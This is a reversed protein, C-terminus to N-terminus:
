GLREIVLRREGDVVGVYAVRDDHVSAFQAGPPGLDAVVAGTEDDHVRLTRRDRDSIVIQGGRGSAWHEADAEDRPRGDATWLVTGDEIDFVTVERAGYPRQLVVSRDTVGVVESWELRGAMSPAEWVLAGTAPDLRRMRQDNGRAYVGRDDAFLGSSPHPAWWLRAGATLDHASVWEDTALYVTTSTLAISADLTRMRWLEEGTVADVVWVSELDSSMNVVFGHAVRVRDISEATHRWLTEGTTGDIGYQYGACWVVAVDTPGVEFAGAWEAAPCVESRWLEAGTSPSYGTLEQGTPVVVNGAVFRPSGLFPGTVGEDAPPVWSRGDAVHLEIRVVRAAGARREAEIAGGAARFETWLRMGYRGGDDDLTGVWGLDDEALQWGRGQFQEVLATEAQHLEVGRPRVVLERTCWEASSSEDVVDAVEPLDAVLEAPPRDDCGGFAGGVDIGSCGGLVVAAAALVAISVRWGAAARRRRGDRAAPWREAM